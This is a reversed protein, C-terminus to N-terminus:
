LSPAGITPRNANEQRVFSKVDIAMVVSYATVENAVGGRSPIYTVTAKGLGTTVATAMRGPSPGAVAKFAGYKKEVLALPDFSFRGSGQTQSFMVLVAVGRAFGVVISGKSFHELYRIGKCPGIVNLDYRNCVYPNEARYTQATPDRRRLTKLVDSESMGLQIGVLDPGSVSKALTSGRNANPQDAIGSHSSSASRVPEASEATRQEAPANQKQSQEALAQLRSRLRQLVNQSMAVNSCSALIILAAVHRPRIRM